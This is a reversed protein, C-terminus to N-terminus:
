SGAYQFIGIAIFFALFVLLLYQVARKNSKTFFYGTLFALPIYIILNWSSKYESQLFFFIFIIFISLYFYRLISITWARESINFIYLYLGAFLYILLLFVLTIWELGTLDLIHVTFSDFHPLFSLFINKDGQFISWTFIFLYVIAFGTLNALFVRGNFCQFYVFGLWFVPFLLLLPTWLLSGLSLLLSINLSNIQSEHKQYSIFLPYYCLIFCAAAVSGKLDSYYVPNSGIFLLYFLAPLFTREQIFNFIQNLQLLFFAIGLQILLCGWLSLNNWQGSLLSLRVAIFAFLVTFLLLKSTLLTKHIKGINM